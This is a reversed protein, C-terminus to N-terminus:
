QGPGEEGVQMDEAEEGLISRRREMRERVLRRHRARRDDDSRGTYSMTALYESIKEQVLDRVHFALAQSVFVRPFRYSMWLYLVVAHHLAELHSLYVSNQEETLDAPKASLVELNIEPMDLINGGRKEALCRAMGRLAEIGGIARLNAPSAMLVLRDSVPLPFEHVADLIALFDDNIVLQFRQSVLAVEQIRMLVFSLPTDSPFFSAFKEVFASPPFIVASRIQRAHKWLNERVSGLDLPDLTTVYGVKEEEAVAREVLKEADAGPAGPSDEGATRSSIIADRATKFRGARGGIQRIESVTLERVETGDHKSVGEFIIRQIELNLGMGVADSAVLFDYDNDPDNFLAAQHARTEPPLGGYIVACRRGTEQEVKHKIAHISFRSFSVICDGKELNQFTKGLARPAAKLPTLRKYRHIVCNDGISACISQILEVTREEGCLHVEKAMVGLFAATWASGRDVDAMMQIEDIVAVDVVHNLPTMEVTCSIFYQDTDEPIRQEEGTVLACPKGKAQLRTYIEHALLRLPGCYVGTEANELAKLAHYTKGSNTPGVHLHITRQMARTAPFWEWPYRLDLLRRQANSVPKSFRDRILFNRFLYYIQSSLGKLDGRIYALRLTDLLNRNNGPASSPEKQSLVAKLSRLFLKEERRLHDMDKVGFPAMQSEIEEWPKQSLAQNKFRAYVTKEFQQPDSGRTSTSLPASAPVHHAPALNASPITCRSAFGSWCTACVGPIRRSAALGSYASATSRLIRSM